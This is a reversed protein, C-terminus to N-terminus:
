LPTLLLIEVMPSAAVEVTALSPERETECSVGLRLHFTQHYKGLIHDPHFLQRLWAFYMLTATYMFGKRHM